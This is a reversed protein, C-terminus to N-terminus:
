RTEGALQRDGRGTASPLVGLARLQGVFPAVVPGAVDISPDTRWGGLHKWIVAGAADLALIRGSAEDHIVVRDGIAISVVTPNIAPSPPLAAVEFREGPVREVLMEIHDATAEPTGVILEYCLSSAALRGLRLATAGFREADLTDQMLAVAADVPHMPRSAAGEGPDRFPPRRLLVVLHVPGGTTVAGGSASVPVFRFDERGDEVGPIMWPTLHDVLGRGGPKISLPKPFGSVDDTDRALSVTEDTIFAWGRKVLHAITTTKGTDREAAVVAVRGDKVAAGAHLHLRGPDADLGSINVAGMLLSLMSMRSGTFQDEVRPGTLSWKTEDDVKRREIVFVAPSEDDAPPSPLDRFLSDILAADEPDSARVIFRFAGAAFPRTTHLERGTAVV